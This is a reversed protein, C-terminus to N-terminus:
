RFAGLCAYIILIIGVFGAFTMALELLTDKLAPPAGYDNEDLGHLAGFRRERSMAWDYNDDDNRIAM